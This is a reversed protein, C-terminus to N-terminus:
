GLMRKARLGTLVLIAGLLLFLGAVIWRLLWENFILLLGFVIAGGGLFLLLLPLQPPVSPMGRNLNFEMIRKRTHRKPEPAVLGNRAM